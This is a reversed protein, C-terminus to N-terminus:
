RREGRIMQQLETERAADEAAEVRRNTGCLWAIVVDVAIMAFMSAFFVVVMLAFGWPASM